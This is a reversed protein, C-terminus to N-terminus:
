DVGLSAVNTVRRMSKLEEISPTGPPMEWSWQKREAQLQECLNLPEYAHNQMFRSIVDSTVSARQLALLIEILYAILNRQPSNNNQGTYHEKITSVLRDVLLCPVLFKEVLTEPDIRAFTSVSACIIDKIATLVISSTSHQFAMEVLQKM